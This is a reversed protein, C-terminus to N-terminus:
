PTQVTAPQKNTALTLVLGAKDRSRESTKPDDLVAKAIQAIETAPMLEVLAKDQVIMMLHGLASQQVFPDEDRTLKVLTQKHSRLLEEKFVGACETAVVRYSANSHRLAAMIEGAIEQRREPMVSVVIRVVFSSIVGIPPGAVGTGYVNEHKPASAYVQMYRSFGGGANTGLGILAFAAATKRAKQAESWQLPAPRNPQQRWKWQMWMNWRKFTTVEPSWEARDSLTERYVPVAKSGIKLLAQYAPDAAIAAPPRPDIWTAEPQSRYEYLVLKDLWETTSRGRYTAEGSFWGRQWAVLILIGALIAGVLASARRARGSGHQTENM